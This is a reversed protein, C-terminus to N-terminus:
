GHLRRRRRRRNALVARRITQRVPGRRARESARPYPAYRGAAVAGIQTAAAGWVLFALVLPVPVYGVAALAVVYWPADFGLEFRFAFSALLLLPGAFGAAYAALRVRLPADEYNPVWLWVHLSPLVFVLTYPNTAAVLLGALALALLAALHGAIEESREVARTPLLRPRALLWACGSLAALVLLTGAPWNRAALADPSLPRGGSEPFAGALVLLAFVAGSWLWVGLRSRLSRLAPALPVRARRLRAFLELTAAIFPLLSALLVLQIAWGRVTRSGFYLYSDTDRAADAAQDLSVLLGQASRGMAGLQKKRLETVTDGYPAPPRGDGSTLTVAPIGHAILPAQGFFSFPFALDIMQGIVTPRSPLSGTQAQVSADATTLLSVAPTRATDGAFELRPPGSGALADLNVVAVIAAGAPLLRTVSGPDRALEAAGTNGYAGGDSSVFVLTHALSSQRGESPTVTNRAIELLAATGSANDNAGPSVGLNDRHAMVVIAQTSAGPVIAFLNVFGTKGRGPVTATFPARQAVLGFDGLRSVVWETAGRGGATGPRRDPFSQALETALRVATEQDFSPPLEPAPLSHPQGVTFAAVLVPVFVVAWAARYLRASVPRDLSGRRPRRRRPPSEVM